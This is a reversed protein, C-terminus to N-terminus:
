KKILEDLKSVNPGPGIPKLDELPLLQGFDLGAKKALPEYVAKLETQATTLKEKALEHAMRLFRQRNEPTLRDGEFFRAPSNFWVQLQGQAAQINEAEGTMVTGSPDLIKAMGNIIALDGQSSDSAAGIRVNQYGSRVDQYLKHTPESRIDSRIDRLLKRSEEPLLPGEQRQRELRQEVETEATKKAVARPIEEAREQQRRSEDLLRTREDRLRKAEDELRTSLSENKMLSALQADRTRQAIKTELAAIRPDTAPAQATGTGGGALAKGGSLFRRVNAVYNPDGGGNYLKLAEDVNGKTQALKQKLYTVGGQINLTTDARKAPDIGADIAAGKHLQFLGIAEGGDGVQDPKLYSEQTAVAVALDPDVGQRTAEARIARTIDSEAPPGGGATRAQTGTTTAGGGTATQADEAPVQAGDGMGFRKALEPFMQTEMDLNRAKAEHYLSEARDKATSGRAIFPAMAEKSYFQPLQAAYKGLGSSQFDTRMADLSAQDTVGQAQQAVYGLVKVGMGLQQEQMKWQRDQQGQMQQQLM